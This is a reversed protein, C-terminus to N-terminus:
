MVETASDARLGQATDATVQASLKLRARAQLADPPPTVTRHGSSRDLFLYLHLPSLQPGPQLWRVVGALGSHGGSM